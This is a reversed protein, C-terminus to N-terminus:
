KIQIKANIETETENLELLKNGTKKCWAAIDKAFGRDTVKVNLIDGSNAEKSAKFVQMIPGPCQLGKCNLNIEAM